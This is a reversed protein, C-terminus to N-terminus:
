RVNKEPFKLGISRLEEMVAFEKSEFVEEDKLLADLEESNCKRVDVFCTSNDPLLRSAVIAFIILKAVDESQPINGELFKSIDVRLDSMKQNAYDDSFQCNKFMPTGAIAGSGECVLVMQGGRKLLSIKEVNAKHFQVQPLLFQNVGRLSVYPENGLGSNISEIKGSLLLTKKFYQQDAAVQNDSYARAVDIADVSLMGKSLMTDGGDLFAAMDDEILYDLILAERSQLTYGKPKGTTTSLSLSSESDSNHNALIGIFFVVILSIYVWKLSKKM